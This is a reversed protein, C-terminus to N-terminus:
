GESEGSSATPAAGRALDARDAAVASEAEDIERAFHAVKAAEERQFEQLRGRRHADVAARIAEIPPSGIMRGEVDRYVRCGYAIPLEPQPVVDEGNIRITPSGQFDLFEADDLSSVFVLQIPVEIIGKRLVTELDQRAQALHPCDQIALLQVELDAM